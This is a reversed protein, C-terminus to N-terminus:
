IIKVPYTKFIELSTIKEPTTKKPDYKIEFKDPTSYTISDINCNKKIEDIILSAHGSCPIDVKISLESLNNKEEGLVKQSVNPTKQFNANALAPLIVFFMFLNVLITTSYVSSIYKWRSKIGSSCLCKNRKLYIASSLTALVLSIIILYLFFNPILLFRKLFASAAVAGIISFLAFAICFSHPLIGLLIGSLIGKSKKDTKTQCCSKEQQEM